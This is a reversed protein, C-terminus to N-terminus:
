RFGDRYFPGSITCRVKRYEQLWAREVARKTTEAKEYSDCIFSVVYDPDGMEGLVIWYPIM